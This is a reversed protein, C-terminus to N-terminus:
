YALDDRRLFLKRHREISPSKLSMHSNYRTITNNPSTPWYQSYLAIISASVLALGSLIYDSNISYGNLFDTAQNNLILAGGMIGGISCLTLPMSADEFNAPNGLRWQYNRIYERREKRKLGLNELQVAFDKM